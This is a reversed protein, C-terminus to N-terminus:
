QVIDGTWRMMGGVMNKVHYGLASLYESAAESRIGAHCVVIYKRDQNLADLRYPLIQVPINEAGPIHGESFEDPRRVDLISCSEGENMLRAVEEPLIDEYSRDM